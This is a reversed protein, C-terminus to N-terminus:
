TSAANNVQPAAVEPFQALFIPDIGALWIYSSDAQVVRLLKKRLAARVLGAIIMGVGILGFVTVIAETIANQKPGLLELLLGPLIALPLGSFVLIASTRDARSERHLHDGCLGINLRTTPVFLALPIKKLKFSKRGHEPANCITCGSPLVASPFRVVLYAGDRWVAAVDQSTHTVPGVNRPATYPNIPESPVNGM